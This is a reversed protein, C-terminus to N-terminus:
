PRPLGLPKGQPFHKRPSRGASSTPWPDGNADDTQKGTATGFRKSKGNQCAGGLANALPRALFGRYPGDTLLTIRPAQRGRCLCAGQATNECNSQPTLLTM